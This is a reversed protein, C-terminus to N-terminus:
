PLSEQDGFTPADGRHEITIPAGAPARHKGQVNYSLGTRHEWILAAEVERASGRPVAAVFVVNGSAHMAADLAYGDGGRYRV